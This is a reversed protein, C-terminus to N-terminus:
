NFSGSPVMVGPTFTQWPLENSVRPGPTRRPVGVLVYQMGAGLPSCTDLVFWQKCLVRPGVLWWTLTPHLSVYICLWWLWFIVQDRFEM